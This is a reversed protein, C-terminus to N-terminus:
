IKILALLVFDLLVAVFLTRCHTFSCLNTALHQIIFFIYGQTHLECIKYINTDRVTFIVVKPERAYHLYVCFKRVEWAPNHKGWKVVIRLWVECNKFVWKLISKWCHYHIENKKSDLDFNQRYSSDDMILFPVFLTSWIFYIHCLESAFCSVPTCRM